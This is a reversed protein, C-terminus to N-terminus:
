QTVSLSGLSSKLTASNKSWASELSVGMATILYNNVIISYGVNHVDIGQNSTGQGEFYQADNGNLTTARNIIVPIGQASVAADVITELDTTGLNSIDILSVQISAPQSFTLPDDLNEKDETQSIWAAKVNSSPSSTEITTLLALNSCV